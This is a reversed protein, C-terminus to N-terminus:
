SQEPTLADDSMDPFQTQFQAEFRLTLLVSPPFLIVTMHSPARFGQPHMELGNRAPVLVWPNMIFTNIHRNSRIGYSAWSYVGREGTEERAQIEQALQLLLLVLMTVWSGYQQGLRSPPFQAVRFTRGENLSPGSRFLGCVPENFFSFLKIQPEYNTFELSGCVM